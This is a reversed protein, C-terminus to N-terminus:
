EVQMLRALITLNVTDGALAAWGDAGFESRSVSGSVVISLLSRDGPDTGRQRYLKAKFTVPKTVGRVTLLGDVDAGEAARRVATSEFTILPFEDAWLVKASKMGQTAFPFGAVANSVDLAVNVSTNELADFDIAIDADAVPMRGTVEDPGLTWSFGVVSDDQQLAYPVPAAALATAACLAVLGSMLKLILVFNRM